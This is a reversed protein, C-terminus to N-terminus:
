KPNNIKLDSFRKKRQVFFALPLIGRYVGSINSLPVKNDPIQHKDIKFYLGYFSFHAKLVSFFEGPSGSLLFKLAALGDLILRPLLTSFFDFGKLNKALLILNNRFNLFTKRPDGMALSGGGVHFVKSKPECVIKFGMRKIRWCLDIEEMHAFFIPDLGGAKLYIDKRIALCAGSAWFIETESDYQSKDEEVNDLIRGRCFPYGFSDIFGGSAGAYEFYSQNKQDLIKPQVAVVENELALAEELLRLWNETVEVDSNLLIINEAEIEKIGLNYGQSFGHNQELQILSVADLGKLYDISDDSSGNDIVFVSGVPSFKIVSPLFKELLARGNWNLIAVATKIM